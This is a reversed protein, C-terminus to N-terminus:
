YFNLASYSMRIEEDKKIDQMTFIAHLKLKNGDEMECGFPISEANYGKDSEFWQGNAHKYFNSNIKSIINNGDLFIQEELLAVLYDQNIKKLIKKSLHNPEVDSESIFLVTGGHIGICTGSPINKKAFVGNQGSLLSDSPLLDNKEDLRKVVLQTDYLALREEPTKKSSIYPKIEKCSYIRHGKRPSSNSDIKKIKYESGDMKIFPYLGNNEPMYNRHIYTHLKFFGEEKQSNLSTMQIKSYFHNLYQGASGTVKESDLISIFKNRKSENAILTFPNLDSKSLEYYFFGTITEDKEMKKVLDDVLFRRSLNQMKVLSKTLVNICEYPKGHISYIVDKICKDWEKWTANCASCCKRVKELRSDINIDLQETKDLFRYKEPNLPNTLMKSSGSSISNNM